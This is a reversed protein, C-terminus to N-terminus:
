NAECDGHCWTGCKPCLGNKALRAHEEARAKLTEKQETKKVEEQEKVEAFEQDGTVETELEAIANMIADYQNEGIFADGLRAHVGASKLQEYNKYFRPEIIEPKRTATAKCEGDVSITIYLTDITEKGLNVIDGDLSVTKPQVKCTKTINIEVTKGDKTGMNVTKTAEM